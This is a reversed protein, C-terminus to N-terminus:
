EANEATSGPCAPPIAQTVELEQHALLNVTEIKLPVLRQWADVVPRTYSERNSRVVIGIRGDSLEVFSGVPFLSVTHLFGRVAATDFKGSKALKLLEQMAGYPLMAPRHPRPSTMGVYSDVVMAVKALPHIQSGVRQKPYGSGDMREHMQYAVMKAGLPIGNLRDIMDYALAPHRTIDLREVRDLPSTCNLLQPSIKLMGLDHLMCGLAIAVLSQEDMELIVGVAAALNTVQLSHSFPYKDPQKQVALLVFLDFDAAIQQLTASVHDFLVKQDVPEGQKLKLYLDRLDAISQQFRSSFGVTAEAVPKHETPKQLQHVFATKRPQSAAADPEQAPQNHQVTAPGRDPVTVRSLERPSIRVNLIGRETLKKLLARSLEQGSAVLLLSTANDYIPTRLVAGVRLRSIPVTWLEEVEAKMM